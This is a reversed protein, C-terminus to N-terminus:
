RPKAPAMRSQGFILRPNVRPQYFRKELDRLRDSLVRNFEDLAEGDISLPPLFQPATVSIPLQEAM